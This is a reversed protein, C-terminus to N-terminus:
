SEKRIIMIYNRLPTWDYPGGDWHDLTYIEHRSLTEEQEKRKEEVINRIKRTRTKAYHEQIMRVQIPDTIHELEKNEFIIEQRLTEIKDYYKHLIKLSPSLHERYDRIHSDGTTTAITPTSAPHIRNDKAIAEEALELAEWDTNNTAEDLEVLDQPGFPPGLAVEEEPNNTRNLARFHPGELDEHEGSLAYYYPHRRRWANLGQPPEKKNDWINDCLEM